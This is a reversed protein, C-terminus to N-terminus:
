GTLVALLGHLSSLIFPSTGYIIPCYELFAAMAQSYGLEHGAPVDERYHLVDSFQQPREYCVVNLLHLTLRALVQRLDQGHKNIVQMLSGAGAVSEKWVRKNTEENFFPSTIKRYVRTEPGDTGTITPGFINLLSILEIPKGFSTDRFIHHTFTPDCTILTNQGPSVLIFTDSGINKFPM